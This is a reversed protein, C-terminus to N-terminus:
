HAAFIFAKRRQMSPCLCGTALATHCCDCWGGGPSRVGEALLPPSVWPPRGGGASVWEATLFEM